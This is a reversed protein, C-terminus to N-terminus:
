GNFKNLEKLSVFILVLSTDIASHLLKTIQALALYKKKSKENTKCNKTTKKEYQLAVRNRKYTGTM